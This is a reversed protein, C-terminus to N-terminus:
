GFAAQQAVLTRRERSEPLRRPQGKKSPVSVDSASDPGIDAIRVGECADVFLYECRFKSGTGITKISILTGMGLMHHVELVPLRALNLPPWIRSRANGTVADLGEGLTARVISTM